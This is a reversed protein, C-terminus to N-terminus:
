NSWREYEDLRNEQRYKSVATQLKRLPERYVSYDPLYASQDRETDRISDYVLQLVDPSCKSEVTEILRRIHKNDQIANMKRDFDTPTEDNLEWGRATDITVRRRPSSPTTSSEPSM